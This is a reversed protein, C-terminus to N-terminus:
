KILRSIKILGKITIDQNQSVKTKISNKFLGSFGGTIIVKFSKRTEKKILNIINDILGAYGWFFGSRVASITNNGIVKNIKKLEIKPILTARDSLSNLSLKVGPAIIGGFYIKKVIVDFTTATGFDLIIFNNKNNMLMSNMNFTQDCISNVFNHHDKHYGPSPDSEFSISNNSLKAVKFMPETGLACYHKIVLVGDKDSYTTFMEVGDEVLDERITNGNSLLKFNYSAEIVNGSHQTLTGEWKGLMNDKIFQFAKSHTVEGLDVDGVKNNAADISFSFILIFSFVIKKLM